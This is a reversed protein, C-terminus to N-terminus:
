RSEPTFSPDPVRVISVVRPETLSRDVRRVSFSHDRDDDMSWRFCPRSMPTVRHDIMACGGPLDPAETLEAWRCSRSMIEWLLGIAIFVISCALLQHSADDLLICLWFLGYLRLASLIAALDAFFSFEADVFSILGTGWKLRDNEKVDCSSASTRSPARLVRVDSSAM